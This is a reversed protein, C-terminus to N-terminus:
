SSVLAHSLNGYRCFCPFGLTTPVLISTDNGSGSARKSKTKSQECMFGLHSESHLLLTRQKCLCHWIETFVMHWGSVKSQIWSRNPQPGPEELLCCVGKTSLAHRFCLQRLCICMKDM